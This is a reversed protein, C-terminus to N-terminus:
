KKPELDEICWITFDYADETDEARQHPKIRQQCAAAERERLVLDPLAERVLTHGVSRGEYAAVFGRVVDGVSPLGLEREKAENKQGM